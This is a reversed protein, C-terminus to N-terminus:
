QGSASSGAACEQMMQHHFLADASGLLRGCDQCDFLRPGPLAKARKRVREEGSGCYKKRHRKLSSTRGFPTRCDTCEVHHDLHTRIHTLPDLVGITTAKRSRCGELTCVWPRVARGASIDIFHAHVLHQAYSSSRSFNPAVSFAETCRSEGPLLLRCQFHVDGPSSLLLAQAAADTTTNATREEDWAGHSQLHGHHAGPRSPANPMSFHLQHPAPASHLPHRPHISPTIPQIGHGQPMITHLTLPDPLPRPEM